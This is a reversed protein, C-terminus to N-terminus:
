HTIASLNEAEGVMGAIRHATEPYGANLADVAARMTLLWRRSAPKKMWTRVKDELYRGRAQFTNGGPWDPRTNVYSGDKRTIRPGFGQALMGDPASSLIREATKRDQRDEIGDGTIEHGCQWAAVIRAARILSIRNAAQIDLIIVGLYRDGDHHFNLKPRHAARRVSFPVSPKKPRGIPRDTKRTAM